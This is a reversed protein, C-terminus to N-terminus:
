ELQFRLDRRTFTTKTKCSPCELETGGAPLDPATPLMYDALTRNQGIESHTFTELCNPCDVVWRSSTTQSM